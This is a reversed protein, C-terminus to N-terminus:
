VRQDARRIGAREAPLFAFERGVDIAPIRAGLQIDDDGLLLQRVGVAEAKRGIVLREVDDAGSASGAIDPRAPLADDIGAVHLVLLYRVLAEEAVHHEVADFAARVAHAGIDVAIQPDARVRGQTVRAHQAERRLALQDAADAKWSTQALRAKPPGFRSRRNM